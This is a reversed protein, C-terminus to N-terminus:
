FSQPFIYHSIRNKGATWHHKLTSHIGSLNNDSLEPSIFIVAPKRDNQWLADSVQTPTNYYEITCDVGAEDFFAGAEEGLQKVFEGNNELIWMEM